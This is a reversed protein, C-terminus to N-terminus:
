RGQAGPDIDVAVVEPDLAHGPQVARAVSLRSSWRSAMVKAIAPRTASPVVVISRGADAPM